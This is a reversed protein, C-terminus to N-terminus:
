AFVRRTELVMTGSGLDFGHQRHHVRGSTRGSFPGRPCWVPLHRDVDRPGAEAIVGHEVCAFTM